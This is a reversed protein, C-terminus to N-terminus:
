GRRRPGLDGLLFHLPALTERPQPRRLLEGAQGLDDPAPRFGLSSCAFLGVRRFLSRAEELLPGRWTEKLLRAIAAEREAGALQGGPALGSWAPSEALLDAKTIVIALSVGRVRPGLRRCLAAFCRQDAAGLDGSLASGSWADSGGLELDAALVAGDIALIGQELLAHYRESDEADTEGSIAVLRARGGSQLRERREVEPKAALTALWAYGAGRELAAPRRGHRFLEARRVRMAEAAGGFPKLVLRDGSGESELELQHLMSLLLLTKGAGPVGAFGLLAPTGSLFHEAGLAAGCRCAPAVDRRERREGAAGDEEGLLSDIWGKWRSQRPVADSSKAEVPAPAAAPHAPPAAPAELLALAPPNPDEIWHLGARPRPRAASPPPEPLPAEPPPAEPLSEAEAEIAAPPPEPQLVPPPMAAAASAVPAPTTEAAAAEEPTSLRWCRLCLYGASM